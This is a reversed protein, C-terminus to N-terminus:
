GGTAWIQKDHKEILMGSINAKGTSTLDLFKGGTKTAEMVVEETTKNRVKFGESDMTAKTDTASSIATIGKSIQVTESISENANQTWIMMNEEGENGHKLILDYIKFADDANSEIELVLQGATIEGSSHIEGSNQNLNFTKGNYRVQCTVASSLRKYRFSLSYVGNVLTVAQKLIGNQILLAHGSTSEQEEVQKVNGEWFEAKNNQEMYYPATNRLLNNGGSTTFTNVLGNEASQILENVQEKNYTNNLDNNISEVKNTLNTITGKEQDVIIQTRRAIDIPTSPRVYNVTSSIVSPAELTIEDFKHNYRFLFSYTIQGVKNKLKVADGCTLYPLFSTKAVFSSYGFGHIKNYIADILLQRKDQNYAFPNDNIILWHENGPTIDPDIKTINNGDATSMGLSVANIPRTDRKDQLETYDKIIAGTKGNKLILYIKDDNFVKVFDCSSMSIAKFVDRITAGTGTFQDSDVIFDSNTFTTIGSELGSLECAENWVDLLTINGSSYDLSSKYEVQTKLGYDMAVVSMIETTDNDTVETTIFTGIKISEGDVRKYYVFEKNKFDYNNPVEFKLEKFIFTGIFNGNEYCDDSLEAKVPINVGDLVVYESLSMESLNCKNIFSTTLNKLM